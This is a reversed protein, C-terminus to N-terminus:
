VQQIFLFRRELNLTCQLELGVQRVGALQEDQLDRHLVPSALGLGISGHEGELAPHALFSVTQYTGGGGYVDDKSGDAHDKAEWM